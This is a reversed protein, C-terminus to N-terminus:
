QLSRTIPQKGRFEIALGIRKLSRCCLGLSPIPFIAIWVALGSAMIRDYYMCSVALTCNFRDTGVEFEKILFIRTDYAYQVCNLSVM